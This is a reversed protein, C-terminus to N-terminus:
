INSRASNKMKTGTYHQYSKREQHITPLGAVDGARTNINKSKIEWLM